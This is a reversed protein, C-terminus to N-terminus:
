PKRLMGELDDPLLYGGDAERGVRILDIGCDKPRLKSILDQIKSVPTAKALYLDGGTTGVESKGKVRLEHLIRKRL